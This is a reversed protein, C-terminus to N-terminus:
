KKILEFKKQSYFFYKIFSFFKATPGVEDNLSNEFIIKEKKIACQTTEKFILGREVNRLFRKMAMALANYHEAYNFLKKRCLTMSPM